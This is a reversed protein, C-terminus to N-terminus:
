YGECQQMSYEARPSCDIKSLEANGAAVHKELVALNTIPPRQSVGYVANLMFNDPCIHPSLKGNSSDELQFFGERGVDIENYGVLIKACGKEVERV